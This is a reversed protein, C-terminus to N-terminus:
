DVLFERVAAIQDPDVLGPCHGINPVEFISAKPGTSQMRMVTDRQLLLSDRGWICLVPCAIQQWQDWADYDDLSRVAGLGPDYDLAWEGDATKRLSDRGFKQWEAETFPGFATRNARVWAIGEAESKFRTDLGFVRANQRRGAAPIFPGIDNLVLKRVPSAPMAAIRMGIVGGMSTGLWDVKPVGTMALVEGVITEYLPYGYQTKDEFWDSQGRGPMDVAIVYYHPALAAGITDFDRANRSIGHVCILVNPNDPVGHARYGVSHHSGNWHYQLFHQKM